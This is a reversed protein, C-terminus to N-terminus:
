SGSPETGKPPPSELKNLQSLFHAMDNLCSNNFVCDREFEMVWQKWQPYYSAYGLINAARKNMCKWYGGELDFRIYRYVTKM